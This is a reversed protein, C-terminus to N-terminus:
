KKITIPQGLMDAIALTLPGPPRVGSSSQMMEYGLIGVLFMIVACPLMFIVPMPGWPAAPLLKEKLVVRGEGATEGEEEFEESDAEQEAQTDADLDGFDSSEEETGLDDVVAADGDMLTEAEEDLAVVQSGSEEEGALESDDLALDFDSSEMESDAGADADDVAPVEFDTEFIDGEEQAAAVSKKKSKIQPADEDVELSPLNGSDDLTLEFESDSDSPSKLVDANADHLSLEFESSDEAPAQPKAGSIGSDVDLSLDIDSDDAAFQQAAESSISLEFQSDTDEAPDPAAPPDGAQLEFDSDSDSAAPSAGPRPTDEVELSLDFDLGEDAPASSAGELSIGADVPNDLSIGSTASTMEVPPQQLVNEQDEPLELSFDSDENLIDGHDAPTLDFDSSHDESKQQLPTKPGSDDALEPPMQLDSDSLEFPSEAPLKLESKVRMKTPPEHKGREELHRIEEDLNIEETQMANGEGSDAPPLPVRDLRVNSDAYATPVHDGLPVDDSSGFLKVDSDDDLPVLRVGSDVPSPGPGPSIPQKGSLGTKGSSLGTKGTRQVGSGLAVQSSRKGSSAPGAPPAGIKSKPADGKNKVASDALRIDSDKPPVTFTVDSGDAVLRVDSDSGQLLNPPTPAKKSSRPGERGPPVSLPGLFDAGLDVSDSENDFEFDFVDPVNPQKNPTKAELQSKRKAQSPSEAPKDPTKPALQSKRSAQSLSEAQKAATRSSLQSKRGSSAPPKPPPLSVDGLPVDPDSSGGRQRAMEQIDQIRFRLTGRDQFSRIKGKQTMLKLEEVSLGLFQAAEQLTYYGQVM